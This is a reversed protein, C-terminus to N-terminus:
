LKQHKHDIEECYRAANITQGQQLFSYHIVGKANWWVTVMLKRMRLAPKPCHRAPEDSDLWQGSRKRNDYNYGNKM